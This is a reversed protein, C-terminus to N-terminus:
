NYSGGQCNIGEQNKLDKKRRNRTCTDKTHKTEKGPLLHQSTHSLHLTALLQKLLIKFCVSRFDDFVLCLDRLNYENDRNNLAKQPRDVYPTYYEFQLLFYRRM